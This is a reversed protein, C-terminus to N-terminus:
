LPVVLSFVGSLLLMPLMIWKAPARVVPWALTAVVLAMIWAYYLGIVIPSLDIACSM